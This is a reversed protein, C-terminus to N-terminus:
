QIYGLSRLTELQDANLPSDEGRTFQQALAQHSEFQAELLETYKRVLDPREDHLSNLCYPDDWLDYLLLPVPRKEEKPRDAGPNIRLSAAWRGDVVEIFGRLEGTNVDQEFQDLIVPKPEWGPEGRLLPALSQGHKIEAQPLGVLDLVTPLMDIMSVPDRFRQGEVIHGPWVFIMPIRNIGPRFLSFFQWPPPLTERTLWDFDIAGADIGHDSAIILLTNEWEGRAKLRDVLRGIQYDQHAMTEAYLDRDVTYYAVRDVGAKDFAGGGVGGPLNTARLKKEWEERINRREPSVYLGAFPAPPNHPGHVDTTQFHVWYPGSPYERRWKWFEAHLAESSAADPVGSERLYDVGRDLNSMTGSNPNSTLLATQYGARHLHEHIMPVQDPPVNRNNQLGGMASHQLGALFTLTSPRTWSANSYAHEFLVGEAALREINPTTRRNYGYASMYDAGASDIIYFIINPMSTSRVGSLTPAAWLAITGDQDSDTELALTVDRGALHALDISRQAWRESDSYSEDLLRDLREGDYEATVRFTVPEDDRLVGLGVDLRGSEPVHVRYELKSPAHTYLTRRYAQGRAESKVGLPPDAFHAEKPVVSVSLIDISAPEAAWVGIMIGAGSNSESPDAAIPFIYTQESGDRIVPAQASRHHGLSIENVKESTRARVLVDAWESQVWDKPEISVFGVLPNSRSWSRNAGSLTIRLADETREVQAAASGDPQRPYVIAKWDPQPEDFRWEIVEPIDAGPESGTVVAQDLHEELHLPVEATLPTPGDQCTTLTLLSSMAVLLLVFGTSDIRTPSKFNKSTQGVM